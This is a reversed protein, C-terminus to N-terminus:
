LFHQLTTDLKIITIQQSIIPTCLNLPERPLQITTHTRGPLPTQMLVIHSLIARPHLNTVLPHLSTALAQDLTLALHLIVQDVEV